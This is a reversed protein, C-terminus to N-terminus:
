QPINSGKILCQQLIQLEKLDHNDDILDYNIYKNESNSYIIRIRDLIIMLCLDILNQYSSSWQPPMIDLFGHESLHKSLNYAGQFHNLILQAFKFNINKLNTYIFKTQFNIDKVKHFGRLELNENIPEFKDDAFYNMSM